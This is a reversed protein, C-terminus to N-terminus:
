RGKKRIFVIITEKKTARKSKITRYNNPVNRTLKKALYLQKVNAKALECIILPVDYKHNNRIVDGLVFVCVGGPKIVKSMTILVSLMDEEFTSIKGIENRKVIKYDKVGLFWLRLRNDRAYDLTDMYPPSTIVADVTSDNIYREL